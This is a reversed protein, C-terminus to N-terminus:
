ICRETMQQFGLPLERFVLPNTIAQPAYTSLDVSHPTSLRFCSDNRRDAFEDPPSLDCSRDSKYHLSDNELMDRGVRLM